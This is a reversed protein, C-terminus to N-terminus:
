QKRLTLLLNLTMQTRQRNGETEVGLQNITGTRKANLLVYADGSGMAIVLNRQADLWEAIAQAMNFCDESQRARFTIQVGPHQIREGNIMLRGDDVGSTNYLCLAEDPMDPFFSVFGRWGAGSSAIKGADTLLQWLIDAPSHAM